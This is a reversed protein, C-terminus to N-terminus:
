AHKNEVPHVSTLINLWVKHLLMPPPSKLAEYLEAPTGVTRFWNGRTLWHKPYPPYQLDAQHWALNAVTVAPLPARERWLGVHSGLQPGPAWNNTVFSQVLTPTSYIRLLQCFIDGIKKIRKAHRIMPPFAFRDGPSSEPLIPNGPSKWWLSWVGRNMLHKIWCILLFLSERTTKVLLKDLRDVCQEVVTLIQRRTCLFSLDATSPNLLRGGNAILWFRAWESAWQCLTFPAQAQEVALM